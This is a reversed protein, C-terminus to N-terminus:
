GYWPFLQRTSQVPVFLSSFKPITEALTEPTWGERKNFFRIPRTQNYLVVEGGRAGLIQGNVNRAHESALVTALVAVSEPPRSKLRAAKVEPSTVSDPVSAGMRTSAGPAIVNSRINLKGLEQALVQNFGLMATKAAAYNFQGVSGCFGAGSTMHIFCGSEQKRFHEVAARSVYFMGYLHVKVVADFNEASMKHFMGDRLIGANNVVIDIRGFNDLASQVIRRGGDWTAVSEMNAVAKGGARTIEAVVEQAPTGEITSGDLSSGPDNVVVSAGERAFMMAMARGLGRGSGTVVAVKGKLMEAM